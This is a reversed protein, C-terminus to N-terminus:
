SPDDGVDAPVIVMNHKRDVRAEEEGSRRRNTGKQAVRSGGGSSPTKVTEPEQFGSPSDSFLADAMAM